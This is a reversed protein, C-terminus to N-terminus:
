TDLIAFVDMNRVMCSSSSRCGLESRVDRTDPYDRMSTIIGAAAECPTFQGADQGTSPQGANLAGVGLSDIAAPQEANSVQDNRIDAQKNVAPGSPSSCLESIDTQADRERNLLGTKPSIGKAMNNNQMKPSQSITPNPIVALLSNSPITDSAHSKLYGQVEAESVGHHRLLSRLAANEAAVKRGAVQVEQTAEIGLTEFRQLRQELEQIYEKRRARSRRQNDRIRASSTM